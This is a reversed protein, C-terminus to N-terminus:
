QRVLSRPGGGGSGTPGARAIQQNLNVTLDERETKSAIDVVHVLAQVNTNLNVGAAVPPEPQAGVNPLYLLGKCALAAKLQNPFVAATATIIDPDNPDNTNPDPCFTNNAAALNFQQCLNTRNATFGSDALPALTIEDLNFNNRLFHQVLGEKGDDFGEGPGGDILRAFFQTVFVDNGVVTIGYPNGRVNVEDVVKKSRTDIVSVTGETFNTVYLRTGTLACGRPETGVPIEATEGFVGVGVLEVVSVTGSVANTVFARLGDSAVCVPEEGVPVEALKTLVNPGPAGVAFVTLSDAERNAVFLLTGGRNLAISTSRPDDGAAWAQGITMGGALVGAALVASRWYAKTRTRGCVATSWVSNTSFTLM